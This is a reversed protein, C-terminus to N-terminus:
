IYEIAGDQDCWPLHWSKIPIFPQLFALSVPVHRVQFLEHPHSVPLSAAQDCSLLTKCLMYQISNEMHQGRICIM